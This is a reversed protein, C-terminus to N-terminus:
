VPASLRRTGASGCTSFVWATFYSPTLPSIPPSAPLYEDEAAKIIDYFEELEKFQSVGECFVSTLNQVAAYVAFLPDNGSEVLEQVTKVDKPISVHIRRTKRRLESAYKRVNRFRVSITKSVYGM